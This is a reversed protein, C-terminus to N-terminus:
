DSGKFCNSDNIKEVQGKIQQLIRKMIIYIGSFNYNRNGGKGKGIFEVGFQHPAVSWHTPLKRAVCPVAIGMYVYVIMFM